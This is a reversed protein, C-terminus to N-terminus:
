WRWGTILSEANHQSIGPETRQQAGCIGNIRIGRKERFTFAFSSPSRVPLCFLLV